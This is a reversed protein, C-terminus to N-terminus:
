AQEADRERTGLLDGRKGEEKAGGVVNDKGALLKEGGLETHRASGCM